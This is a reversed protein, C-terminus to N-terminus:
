KRVVKRGFNSNAPLGHNHRWRSVSDRGCGLERVIDADTLGRKYLKEVARYDVTFRGDRKPLIDLGASPLVPKPAGTDTEYLECGPPTISVGDMKRVLKSVGTMAGYGCSNDHMLYFCPVYRVGVKRSCLRRRSQYDMKKSM